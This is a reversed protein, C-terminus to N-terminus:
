TVIMRVGLKQAVGDSRVWFSPVSIGNSFGNGMAVPDTQTPLLQIAGDTMAAMASNGVAINNTNGAPVTLILQACNRAATALLASILTFLNYNTNASALTVVGYFPQTAFSSPTVPIVGTSM